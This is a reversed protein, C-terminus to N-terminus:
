EGCRVSNELKTVPYLVVVVSINTVVSRYMYYIKVGGALTPYKTHQQM